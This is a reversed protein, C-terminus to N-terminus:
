RATLPLLTPLLWARGGLHDSVGAHPFRFALVGELLELSAEVDSSVAGTRLQVALSHVLVCSGGRARSDCSLSPFFPDGEEEM